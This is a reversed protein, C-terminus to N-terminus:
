WLGTQWKVSIEIWYNQGWIEKSRQSGDTNFEVSGQLVEVGFGPQPLLNDDATLDVQIILSSMRPVCVLSKSLPLSSDKKLNVPDDLSREFLTSQYYKKDYSNSYEHNSYRAVLSGYFKTPLDLTNDFRKVLVKVKAQIGDYIITYHVAVYGHDGRVVSCIRKDYWSDLLRTVWSFQGEISLNGEVDKLKFYIGFDELADFGFRYRYKFEIKDFCIQASSEDRNFIPCCEVRINGYLKFPPKLDSSGISISFVEVLPLPDVSWGNDEQEEKSWDSFASSPQPDVLSRQRKVLGEMESEEKEFTASRKLDSGRYRQEYADVWKVRVRIRGNEGVVDKKILGCYIYQFELVGEALRSGDNYKFDVHIQLPSNSYFPVAVMSRSLEIFTRSKVRVCQNHPMNFLISSITTNDEYSSSGPFNTHAAVTGYVDADADDNVYGSSDYDSYEDPDYDITDYDDHKSFFVVDVTAVVAYPFTAYHLTAFGADGVVRKAGHETYFSEKYNFNLEGKAIVIDDRSRDRLCMDVIVYDYPIVVRGDKLGTLSLYRNYSTENPKIFEPNDRDRNYLVLVHGLGNTVKVSGYIECNFLNGTLDPIPHVSISFVELLPTSLVGYNVENDGCSQCRSFGKLNIKKNNM